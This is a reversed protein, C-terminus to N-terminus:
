TSIDFIILCVRSLSGLFREFDFLLSLAGCSTYHGTVPGNSFSQQFLPHPDGQGPDYFTGKLPIWHFM